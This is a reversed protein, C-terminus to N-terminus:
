LTKHLIRSSKRDSLFCSVPVRHVFGGADCASGGFAAQHRALAAEDHTDGVVPRDGPADGLGAGVLARLKSEGILALRQQLTDHRQGFRDPRVEDHRAVDGIRGAHVGDELPQRLLPALEVEENVGNGIGVLVLEVPAIDVRRKFVERRAERDGTIRERREAATGFRQHGIAAREDCEGIVAGFLDDRM